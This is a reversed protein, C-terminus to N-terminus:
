GAASSVGVGEGNQEERRRYFAVSLWWRNKRTRAVEKGLACQQGGRCKRTVPHRGGGGSVAMARLSQIWWRRRGHSVTAGGSQRAGVGALGYFPVGGVERLQLPGEGDSVVVADSSGGAFAAAGTQIPAEVNVWRESSGGGGGNNGLADRKGEENEHWRGRRKPATPSGEGCMGGRLSLGHHGHM